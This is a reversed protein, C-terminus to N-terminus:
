EREEDKGNSGDSNHLHPFAKVDWHRDGLIGKPKHGEGPALTMEPYKDMMCLSKDYEFHYKKVPDENLTEEAASEKAKEKEVNKDMKDNLIGVIEADEISRDMDEDM